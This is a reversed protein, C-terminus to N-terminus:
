EAAPPPAPPPPPSKPKCRDGCLRELEGVREQLTVRQEILQLATMRLSQLESHMLMLQARESPPPQQAFAMASFLVACVFGIVRIM